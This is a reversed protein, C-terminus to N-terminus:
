RRNHKVHFPRGRSTISGSWGLSSASRAPLAGTYVRRAPPLGATGLAPVIGAAVRTALNSRLTNGAQHQLPPRPQRQHGDHNGSIETQSRPPADLPLGGLKVHFVQAYIASCDVLDTAVTQIGTQAVSV